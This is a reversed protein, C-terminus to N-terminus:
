AGKRRHDQGTVPIGATMELIRSMIRSGLKAELDAANLNSTFCTILNRSYRWDIVELMREQTWDTVREAAADDLCLLDVRKAKEALLPPRSEQYSQRIDQLMVIVNIYAATRGNNKDFLEMSPHYVRYGEDHKLRYPCYKTSYRALHERITALILHTKGTGTGGALFLGREHQGPEVAAWKQCVRLARLQADSAPKYDDFTKSVYKIPPNLDNWLSIFRRSDGDRITNM